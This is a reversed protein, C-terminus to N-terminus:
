ASPNNRARRETEDRREQREMGKLALLGVIIMFGSFAALMVLPINEPNM